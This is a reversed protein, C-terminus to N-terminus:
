GSGAPGCGAPQHRAITNLTAPESVPRSAAAKGDCVVQGRAAAGAPESFLILICIILLGARM